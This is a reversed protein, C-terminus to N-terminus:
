YKKIVRKELEEVCENNWNIPIDCLNYSAIVVDQWYIDLKEDDLDIIYGFNTIYLKEKKDIMYKSNIDDRYKELDGTTNKLYKRLYNIKEMKEELTKDKYNDIEKSIAKELSKVLIIKDFIAKM